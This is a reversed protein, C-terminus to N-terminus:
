QLFRCFDLHSLSTELLKSCLDFTISLYHTTLRDFVERQLGSTSTRLFPRLKEGDGERIGTEDNIEEISFHKDLTKTSSAMAAHLHIDRISKLDLGGGGM